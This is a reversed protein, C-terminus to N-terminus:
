FALITPKSYRPDCDHGLPEFPVRLVVATLIHPGRNVFCSISTQKYSYKPKDLFVYTGGNEPFHTTWGMWFM